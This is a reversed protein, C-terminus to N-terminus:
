GGFMKKFEKYISIITASKVTLSVTATAGSQSVKVSAIIESVEKPMPFPIEKLQKKGDNLSEDAQKKLKEATGSDKCTATFSASLDSSAHLYGAVGEVSDLDINSGPPLERSMEKKARDDLEKVNVAFAITKSFDAKDLAKQMGAAFEPKKNRELIKKLDEAPGIVVVKSGVVAFSEGWKSDNEYMTYSGVKKETFKAEKNNEKMGSQIDAAKITKRATVIVIPQGKGMNGGMTIREVDTLPMKMEREFEKEPKEMEKIEKKLDKWVSSNIGQEVRVSIIIQADSPLFKLDDASLGGGGILFWIALGIGVLLVLGGISLGIILGKKSKKGGRRIPEDEYPPLAGADPPNYDPVGGAAPYAPAPAIQGGSTTPIPTIQGCKPCKGKKGGMTDPVKFPYQCGGCNFEITM